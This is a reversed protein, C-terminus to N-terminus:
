KRESTNTKLNNDTIRFIFSKVIKKNRIIVVGEKVLNKDWNYVKDGLTSYEDPSKFYWLEDNKEILSIFKEWKDNLPGFVIGDDDINNKIVDSMNTKTTLWEKEVIIKDDPTTLYYLLAMVIPNHIFQVLCGRLIAPHRGLNLVPYSSSFTNDYIIKNESLRKIQFTIIVRESMILNEVTEIDKAYNLIQGSIEIDSSDSITFGSQILEDTLSKKVAVAVPLNMNLRQLYYNFEFPDIGRKDEFDGVQIQQNKNVIPPIKSPIYIFNIHTIYRETANKNILYDIDFKNITETMLKKNNKLVSIDGIDEIRAQCFENYMDLYLFYMHGPEAKFSAKLDNSHAYIWASYSISGGSQSQSEIVGNFKCDINYTKTPILFETNEVPLYGNAGQINNIEKDNFRISYGSKGILIATNDKLTKNVDYLIIQKTSTCSNFLLCMM